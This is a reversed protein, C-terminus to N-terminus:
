FDTENKIKKLEGFSNKKNREDLLFWMSSHFLFLYNRTDMLQATELDSKRDDSTNGSFHM